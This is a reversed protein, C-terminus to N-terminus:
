IQHMAMTEESRTKWMGVCARKKERQGERERGRFSEKKRYIQRMDREIERESERVGGWYEYKVWELYEYKVWELYEYKVWELYEYKLWELYEYKVWELYAYKVWELYEYKVGVPRASLARFVLIACYSSSM